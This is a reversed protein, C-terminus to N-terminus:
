LSAAILQELEIAKAGIPGEIEGLKLLEEQMISFREPCISLLDQLLQQLYNLAFMQHPESMDKLSQNLIVLFSNLDDGTQQTLGKSTVTSPGLNLANEIIRAALLEGLLEPRTASAQKSLAAFINTSTKGSWTARLTKLHDLRNRLTYLLKNNSIQEMLSSDDGPDDLSANEDGKDSHTETTVKNAPIVCLGIQNLNYYWTSVSNGTSSTILAYSDFGFAIQDFESQTPISLSNYYQISTMPSSNWISVCGPVLAMLSSGDPSWTLQQVRGQLPEPPEPCPVVSLKAFDYITVKGSTSGTALFCETPHFALTCVAAGSDNTNTLAHAISGRELDFVLASSKGGESAGCVLSLGDPSFCITSASKFKDTLPYLHILCKRHLDWLEIQSTSLIAVCIGFPHIAAAVAGEVKWMRVLEASELDWVCIQGTKYLVLLTEENSDFLLSQVASTAVVTKLIMIPEENGITYIKVDGDTGGCALVSGYRRSLVM